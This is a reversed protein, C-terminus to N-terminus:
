HGMAVVAKFGVSGCPDCSGGDIHMFAQHNLAHGKSVTLRSTFGPKAIQLCMAKGLTSLKGAEEVIPTLTIGWLILIPTILHISIQLTGLIIDGHLLHIFLSEGGGSRNGRHGLNITPGTTKEM